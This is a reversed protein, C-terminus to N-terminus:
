GPDSSANVNTISGFYQIKWSDPLGDGVSDWYLMAPASTVSGGANAVVVSYNGESAATANTLLLADKTAGSINTGEFRWQYNVSFSDAVVVSFSATRGPGVVQMAPQRLIVPLGTVQPSRSILNGPLDYQFLLQASASAMGVFLPLSRILIAVVQRM